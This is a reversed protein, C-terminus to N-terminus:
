SVEKSYSTSYPRPTQLKAMAHWTELYAMHLDHDEVSDKFNGYDIENVARKMAAEVEKITVVARLLYDSDTSRIVKTKNGFVKEIDGVRRARVLLSGPPCDKKVISLFCDSFCLWM